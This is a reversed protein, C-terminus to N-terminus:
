YNVLSLNIPLPFAYTKRLKHLGIYSSWLLQFDKLHLSPISRVYFELMFTWIKNPHNMYWVVQSNPKGKVRLLVQIYASTMELLLVASVKVQCNELGDTM